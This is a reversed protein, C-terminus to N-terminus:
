VLAKMKEIAKETTWMANTIFRYNTMAAAYGDGEDNQGGAIADRVIAVEFGYELIDRVHNELCLNGVPGAVIVKEIRRQRLQRILDNSLCSLGKHPSTNVTKGDMLYKKLREPYDAGSGHFGQLDVPDKRGVFGAPLHALYDVIASGPAVWQHDTPYYYHPSHIVYIGNEQATKLLQEIHDYVNLEKFKDEIMPYYSGFPELFENQLDTVVLATHKKEGLQM